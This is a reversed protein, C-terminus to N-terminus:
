AEIKINKFVKNQKTTKKEKKSKFVKNYKWKRDKKSDQLRRVQFLYFNYFISVKKLNCMIAMLLRLVICCGKISKHVNVLANWIEWGICGVWQVFIKILKAIFLVKKWWIKWIVKSKMELTWVLISLSNQFFPGCVWREHETM